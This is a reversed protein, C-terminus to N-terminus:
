GGGNRLLWELSMVVRVEAHRVMNMGMRVLGIMGIYM